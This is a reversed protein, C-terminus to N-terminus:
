HEHDHGQHHSQGHGQDHGQHRHRHHGTGRTYAGAEPAFPAQRREITAGLGALMDALVHDDRIRIRDALLQAPTHRNGLHWALRMLAQPGAATAEIVPEPAAVVRVWGGDALRLGDGDGLMAAEPLDLLLAAGADTTLRIRRRHRDDFALTLSDQAAEAPWDGAAARAVARMMPSAGGSERDSVRGHRAIIPRGATTSFRGSRAGIRCQPIQRAGM